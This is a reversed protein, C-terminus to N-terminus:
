GTRAVVAAITCNTYGNKGLDVPPLSAGPAVPGYTTLKGGEVPTSPTGQSIGVDYSQTNTSYNHITLVCASTITVPDTGETTPPAATQPPQTTMASTTPTTAAPSTTPTKSSSGSSCAALSLALLGVGGAALISRVRM